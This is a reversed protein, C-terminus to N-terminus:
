GLTVKTSSGRYFRFLHAHAWYADNMRDWLDTDEPILGFIPELEFLKEQYLDEDSKQPEEKTNGWMGAYMHERVRAMLNKFDDLYALTADLDGEFPELYSNAEEYLEQDDQMQPLMPRLEERLSELSAQLTALYVSDDKKKPEATPLMANILKLNYLTCLNRVDDTDPLLYGDVGCRFWISVAEALETDCDENCLKLYVWFGKKSDDLLGM